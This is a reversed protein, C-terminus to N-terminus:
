DLEALRGACALASPAAGLQEFTQLAARLELLAAERNALEAHAQALLVRAQAEEYPADVRHWLRRVSELIAAAREPAGSALEIAARAHEAAAQLAPTRYTAATEELEAAAAEAVAHDGLALAVDVRVPLLRARVLPARALDGLAADLGDAAANLDGHEVRLLALWPEVLTGYERARQLAAEAGELDGQRLRIEALETSAIGVHSLDLTTEVDAARRAEEAAEAWAGRKILVAAHHTHCDGPLGALGPVDAHRIVADTWEAARGFDHTDLCACLMRCYIVGTAMPGLAGGIASAMAENLLRSGGVPDGEHTLALGEFAVGLAELDADGCRRAVGQAELALERVAAWEGSAEAFVCEVIALLAEAPSEPQGRLLRKARQHWGDAVALEYRNGHNIALLLAVVAARVANRAQTHAQYARRKLELSEPHRNTWWAAEAAGELDDVALPEAADALTFVDFATSWDRAALADRASRLQIERDAHRARAESLGAATVIERQVAARALAVRRRSAGGTIGFKDYLHLLHQKVAAETVVLERAIARVSAPEAFVDEDLVPRCLAILVDRERRTLEVADANM